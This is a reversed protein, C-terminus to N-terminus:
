SLDLAAGGSMQGSGSDWAFLSPPAGDPGILRVIVSTTGDLVQRNLWDRATADFTLTNVRRVGLDKATLSPFLTVAAPANYIAQFDSRAFDRVEKTDLIQVTWKANEVAPDLRDERLGTLEIAVNRLPAGRPVQRLDLRVASVFVEDGLYGAYLFSDGQHIGRADGSSWWGTDAAGPTLAVIRGGPEPTATPRVVPFTASPPVVPVPTSTALSTSTPAPTRTLTTRTPTEMACGSVGAAVLLLLVALAPIRIDRARRRPQNVASPTDLKQQM